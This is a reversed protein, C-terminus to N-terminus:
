NVPAYPYVAGSASELTVGAPLDVVVVRATADAKIDGGFGVNYDWYFAKAMARLKGDVSLRSGVTTQVRIQPVEAVKTGYLYHDSWRSTGSATGIQLIMEIYGDYVGTRTWQNLTVENGFTITVPTGAPLVDSKVTLRDYFHAYGFGYPPSGSFTRATISHTHAYGTAHLVGPESQSSAAADAYATGNSGGGLTVGAPDSFSSAFTANTLPGSSDTYTGTYGMTQASTDVGFYQANAPANFAAFGAIALGATLAISKSVM